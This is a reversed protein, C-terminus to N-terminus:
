DSPRLSEIPSRRSVRLAPVFSALFAVGLLTLLGLLLTLPDRPSVGFLINAMASGLALALAVGLALGVGALRLGRRLVLQLINRNTAGIAARIGLEFRRQSVAYAMVGYLGAAALGLALLGLVGALSAALRFLWLSGHLHDELTRTTLIPVRDDIQGVLEPLAPLMQAAQSTADAVVVGRTRPSQAWPRFLAPQQKENLFNYKGDAVIGVVRASWEGPLRQHRISRGLADQDPWLKAALTENVIVVPESDQVDLAHFVRGAVLQTGLTEFYGPTVSSRWSTLGPEDEDYVRDNAYVMDSESWDALPLGSSISAKRVDSRKQLSALVEEAFQVPELDPDGALGVDYDSVVRGAPEFGPAVQQVEDLSRLFLGTMVVAVFSFCVMAVVVVSLGRHPRSGGLASGGRLARLPKTASAQLAPALGFVLASFMAVASTLLVVRTDPTPDVVFRYPLDPMLPMLWRSTLLSMVIGAAGGLLALLLSETLLQRVLRWRGSGLAFRIGVEKSRGTARAFLLSAVNACAVLLVLSSAALAVWGILRPIGAVHPSISGDLESFLSLRLDRNVEPDLEELRAAVPELSLATSEMTEGRRMRAVARWSSSARRTEWGETWQQAEAWAWVPVWADMALGYKTGHFEPGAVAVVQFEQDSLRVTEGVLSRRGGFARQWLDHSIVVRPAAGAHDVEGAEWFRGVEPAIQLTDFYPASVLEGYVVSSGEDGLQLGLPELRHLFLGDLTDQTQELVDRYNAYSFQGHGVANTEFMRVIRDPEPVPLKTWLTSNVMGMITANAGVGLALSAVALCAFGPSRTLGRAALKWDQIISNMTDKRTKQQRPGSWELHAHLLDFPLRALARVLLVVQAARGRAHAADLMDVLCEAMEDRAQSDVRSPLLGLLTRYLSVVPRGRM